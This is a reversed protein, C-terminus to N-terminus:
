SECTQETGAGGSVGRGPGSVALATFATKYDLPAHVVIEDQAGTRAHSICRPSVITANVKTQSM